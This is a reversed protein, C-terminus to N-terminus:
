EGAGGPGDRGPPDTGGARRCVARGRDRLQRPADAHSRLDIGLQGLRGARHSQPDVAAHARQALEITEDGELEIRLDALRLELARAREVLAPDAAPTNRLAAQIHDIRSRAEGALRIAGQVSRYLEATQQQFAHLGAWDQTPLTAHGLPKVEFRQPEGLPTTVDGLRQAMRVTYTGPAVMPGRPPTSWPERPSWPTTSAPEVPPYHLDWAVRHIGASAPATIERVVDGRDDAITFLIM